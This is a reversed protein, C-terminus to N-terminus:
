RRGNAGRRAQDRLRMYGAQGVIEGIELRDSLLFGVEPNLAREAFYQPPNGGSSACVRPAESRACVVDQPFSIFDFNCARNQMTARVSVTAAEVKM